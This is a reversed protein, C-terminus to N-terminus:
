KAQDSVMRTLCFSDESQLQAERKSAEIARRPKEKTRQKKTLKSPRHRITAPTTINGVWTSPIEVLINRRVRFYKGTAPEYYRKGQKILKNV